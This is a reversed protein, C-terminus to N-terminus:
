KCYIFMTAKVGGHRKPNVPRGKWDVLGQLAMAETLSETGIALWYSKVQHGLERPKTHTLTDSEKHDKLDVLTGKIATSHSCGIANIKTSIPAALLYNLEPHQASKERHDHSTQYIYSFPHKHSQM